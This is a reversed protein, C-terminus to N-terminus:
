QRVSAVSERLLVGVGAEVLDVDVLDGVNRLFEADAGHGGEEQELVALLDALDDTRVGLGELGGDGGVGARCRCLIRAPM